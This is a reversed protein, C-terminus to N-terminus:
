RIINQIFEEFLLASFCFEDEKLEQLASLMKGELWAVGDIIAVKIVDPPSTTEKV